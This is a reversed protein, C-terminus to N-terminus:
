RRERAGASEDDAGDRRLRHLQWVAFALPIAFWLVAKALTLIAAASM